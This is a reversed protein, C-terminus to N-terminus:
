HWQSLEEIIMLELEGEGRRQDVSSPAALFVGDQRSVIVTSYLRVMRKVARLEAENRVRWRVRFTRDGPSHGADNVAVGGDLTSVRNNRRRIEDMASTPLPHLVIHGTLDFLTSAIAIM